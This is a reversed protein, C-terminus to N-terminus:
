QEQKNKTYALPGHYAAFASLFAFGFVFVMVIDYGALVQLQTPKM